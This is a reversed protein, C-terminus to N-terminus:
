RTPVCLKDAIKEERCRIPQERRRFGNCCCTAIDKNEGMRLDVLLLWVQRKRWQRANRGGFSYCPHRARASLRLPVRLPACLRAAPAPVVEGGGAAPTLAAECGVARCVLLVRAPQQLPPRPRAASPRVCVPFFSAHTVSSSHTVSFSFFLFSNNKKV